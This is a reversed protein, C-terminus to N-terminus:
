PKRELTNQSGKKEGEEGIINKRKKGKLQPELGEQDTKGKSTRRKRRTKRSLLEPAV